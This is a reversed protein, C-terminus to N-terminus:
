ARPINPINFSFYLIYFVDDCDQILSHVAQMKSVKHLEPGKLSKM